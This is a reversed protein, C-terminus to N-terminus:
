MLPTGELLHHVAWPQNKIDPHREHTPFYRLEQAM